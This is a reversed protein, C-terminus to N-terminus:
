HREDSNDIKSLLPSFFFDRRNKRFLERLRNIVSELFVLLRNQKQIPASKRGRQEATIATLGTITRVAADRQRKMAVHRPQTAMKASMGRRHRFFTGFAAFVRQNVGSEPRFFH